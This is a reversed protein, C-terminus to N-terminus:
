GTKELYNMYMAYKNQLNSTKAALGKNSFEAFGDHDLILRELFDKSTIRERRDM